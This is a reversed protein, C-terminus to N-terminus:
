VLIVCACFELILTLDAFFKFIERKLTYINKKNLKLIEEPLEIKYMNQLKHQIQERITGQGGSWGQASLVAAM